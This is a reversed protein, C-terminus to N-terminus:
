SNCKLDKLIEKFEDFNESEVEIEQKNKIEIQTKGKVFEERYFSETKVAKLGLLEFIKLIEKYNNSTYRIERKLLTTKYDKNKKIKKNKFVVETILGKKRIRLLKGEKKLKSDPFDYYSSIIDGSFIKKFGVARMRNLIDETFKLKKCYEKKM